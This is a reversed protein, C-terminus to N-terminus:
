HLAEIAMNVLWVLLAALGFAIVVGNWFLRPMIPTNMPKRALKAPFAAPETNRYDPRTPVDM